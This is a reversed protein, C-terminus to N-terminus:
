FRRLQTRPPAPRTRDTWRTGSWFWQTGDNDPSDYWGPPAVDGLSSMVRRWQIFAAVGGVMAAGFAFAIVADMIGPFFGGSQYVGSLLSLMAMMLGGPVGAAVGVQTPSMRRRM